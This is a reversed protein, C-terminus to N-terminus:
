MHTNVFISWNSFFGHPLIVSELDKKKITTFFDSIYIGMMTIPLPEWTADDFTSVIQEFFDNQTVKPPDYTVNLLMESKYNNSFKYRNKVLVFEM